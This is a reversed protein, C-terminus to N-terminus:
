SDTFSALTQRAQQLREEIGLREAEKAYGSRAQFIELYTVHRQWLAIDVERKAALRARYWDSSLLSERTFLARIEPNDLGKGEYQDDRMIHLLAKLAPCALEVSDDNFYHEAVRRQTEIINDMGDVV